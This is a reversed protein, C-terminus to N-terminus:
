GPGESFSSLTALLYAIFGDVMQVTWEEGLREHFSQANAASFESVLQLMQGVVEWPDAEPYQELFKGMQVGLVCHVCEPDGGDEPPIFVWPM